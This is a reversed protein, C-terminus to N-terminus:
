RSSGGVHRAGAWYSAWGRVLADHTISMTAAIDEYRGAVGAQFATSVAIAPVAGMM